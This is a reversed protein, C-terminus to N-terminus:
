YAQVVVQQHLLWGLLCSSCAPQAWPMAQYSYFGCVHYSRQHNSCSAAAALLSQQQQLETHAPLGQQWINPGMHVWKAVQM